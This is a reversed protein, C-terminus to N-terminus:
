EPKVGAKDLLAKNRQLESAIQAPFRSQDMETASAGLLKLHKQVEPLRVAKVSADQLQRVIAPPTGAPVVLGFWSIGLENLQAYGLEKFTPVDPLDPSRSDGSLAVPILKGGKIQPMASPLQDTMVQVMGALADNLAPGNGRYPVIQVQTKMTENFSAVMLHGLTGLGPVGASYAGPQARLKALFGPFDKVGMKPHVMYVSPMTVLNAVPLLRGELKAARTYLSPNITATSVTAMGITYGDPAAQAISETGILGGAGAKNDVVVPQGLTSRLGEAIVRAVIDTSGGAAFPVILKVPKNPYADAAHATSAMHALTLGCLVAALGSTGLSLLTRRPLQFLPKAQM